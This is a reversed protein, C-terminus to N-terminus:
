RRDAQAQELLSGLRSLLHHSRPPADLTNLALQLAAFRSQMSVLTSAPADALEAPPQDPAPRLWEALAIQLTAAIPPAILLGIVGLAEVMVILLFLVLVGGYRKRPNLKREVVFEMFAFVAFTVLIALIAVPANFFMGVLLLPIVAVAGGVLPLLWALAALTACTFPYRVGLLYFGLSLLAGALLCQVVESRLYAGLGREVERWIARASARRNSPLFSLALREFRLSDASWYLSIVIVVLSQSILDFANLTAGLAVSALNAVGGMLLSDLQGSVPLRRALIQQIPNGALWRAQFKGYSGGLDSALLQMEAAVQPVVIWSIGLLLLLAAGYVLLLALSRPIRHGMLWAVPPRLMTAMALSAILLVVLASFEWLLALAGLTTFVVSAALAIDRARVNHNM